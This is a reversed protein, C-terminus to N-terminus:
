APEPKPGGGGELQALRAAMEDLRQQLVSERSHHSRAIRLAEALAPILEEVAELQQRNYRNRDSRRGLLLTGVPGEDDALSMKEILEPDNESSVDRAAILERSLATDLVIASASPHMVDDIIALARTAVEAPTETLAWKKMKSSATRMRELPDGFKKRTWGLVLSQTPSFIGAAIIAGATTAGAQSQRGIVEEILMKLLDSSVAWVVGVVLTVVAYAASRTIVADAEWLRFRTLAILLGLPVVAMGLSFLLVVALNLLFNPQNPEDPLFPLLVFALAVLIFGAAFGFAAWKIQQREIGSRLRRYRLVQAALVTFLVAFGALVQFNPDVDPLSVFIAVPVVGVLLWRYSRPVFIGDPFLAFGILLLYFWLSSVVDYIPPWGFAMWMSLPPDITAALGAFAFAFILAVPDSPRRRALLFSCLLLVSCALLGTLLRAGFRLDRARSKNEDVPVISRRQELKLLTGDSEDSLELTVVPGPAAKLRRGLEPIRIDPDVGAGDIAKLWYKSHPRAEPKISIRGNSELDYDLALARFAPRVDYTERTAHVAGLAVAGVALLFCLFWLLRFFPVWREPLARLRSPPSFLWRLSLASM